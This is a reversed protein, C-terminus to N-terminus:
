LHYVKIWSNHSNVWFKCWFMFQNTKRCSSFQIVSIESFQLWLICNLNIYKKYHFYVHNYSKSVFHHWKHSSGQFHIPLAISTEDGYYLRINKTSFFSTFCVIISSPCKLWVKCVSWAFCFNVIYYFNRQIKREWSNERKFLKWRLLEDKSNIKYRKSQKSPQKSSQKSSQKVITKVITKFITKVITKFITKYSQKSLQKLM